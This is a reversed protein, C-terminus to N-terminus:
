QCLSYRNGLDAIADRRDGYVGLRVGLEFLGIPRWGPEWYAGTRASVSASPTRDERGIAHCPCWGSANARRSAVRLGFSEAVALKDSIADLVEAARLRGRAAPDVRRPVVRVAPPPPEPRPPEVPPLRLVWSPCPAPMPLRAPSQARSLFRYRKPRRPEDGPPPVIVSPPAVILRHDCLREVASHKGEGKWLVAFPIEHGIGAPLSFWLHLGDGGSHTAWTTPVRHGRGYFWERAEPGDLDIVLLRWRRGCMVQLNPTDFRQFLDPPAPRDWLDAYRVLPRKDDHRMPLANYGRARYFAAWRRAQTVEARVTEATGMLM